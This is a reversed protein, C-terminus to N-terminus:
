KSATHLVMGNTDFWVAVDPFRFSAYNWREGWKDSGVHSPPGLLATVQQRSMGVHVRALMGRGHWVALVWCIFPLVIVAVVLVKMIRRAPM